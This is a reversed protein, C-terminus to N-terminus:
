LKDALDGIKPAYYVSMLIKLDLHGSMRALEMVDLKKSLRSLAERRTDHFHLEKIDCRDRIKRFLADRQDDELGFVLTECGAVDKMQKIIRKAEASLPVDRAFSNKTNPLHVHKAHVHEWTLACIEGSRMATELAFLLVAGVRSTVTDPARDVAYGSSYTLRTIEDDTLRRSRAKGQAPKAVGVFPNIKLWKWENIAVTCASALIAWERRVSNPQVVLLRRDRWASVHTVDLKDVSVDVLEKDRLFMNIRM